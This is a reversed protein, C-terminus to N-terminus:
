KLQQARKYWILSREKGKPKEYYTLGMYFNFNFKDINPYETM